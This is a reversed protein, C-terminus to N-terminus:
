PSWELYIPAITAVLEQVPQLPNGFVDYVADPIKQLRIAGATEDTSWVLWVRTGDRDFEYGSWGQFENINRRFVATDLEQISFQYSEFVPLPTYNRGVLGSSRWGSISYWINATLGVMRGAGLSIAAYYAKTLDFAESSCIALSSGCILANETNLLEKDTGFRALLAKLYDTKKIVLPGTTNWTSNWNLNGYAGLKEGYYDYAHFGVADFSDAAGSELVGELFRASSCDKLQGSGPPWEPLNVPDCDLLLGGVVVKVEPHISKIQPYIVKLLQGYYQGGNYIDQQDGWCGYISDFKVLAPDVDPENWIEWYKVNYPAASYRDVLDLMFDAFAQFKEERIRGCKSGQDIRAWLPTSRVILVTELGMESASALLDDFYQVAGWNRQGEFPEVDSWLLANVRIWSAGTQEVVPLEGNAQKGNIEIGAIPNSAPSPNRTVESTPTQPSLTPTSTPTSQPITATEVFTTATSTLSAEPQTIQVTASPDPTENGLFPTSAVPAPLCSVLIVSLVIGFLPRRILPHTRRVM